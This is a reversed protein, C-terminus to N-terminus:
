VTAAAPAVVRWNRIIQNSFSTKYSHEGRMLDLTRVGEAALHEVLRYMMVSGPSYRALGVDFCPRYAWYVGGFLFSYFFAAPRGDLSLETLLLRGRASLAEAVRRFLAAIHPEDFRAFGDPRDRWQAQHMATFLPFRAAIQEPDRHHACVLQGQRALRRLKVQYEHKQLIQAVSARDRLDLRWCRSSPQLEAAPLRERFCPSHLHAALCGHPLIDDLDLQDWAGQTEAVAQWIARHAEPACAPDILFTHYDAFPASLHMLTRRGAAGRIMLPAVAALRGERRVTLIHLRLAPDHQGLGEFWARYWEFTQFVTADPCVALLADWEPELARLGDIHEVVDIQEM